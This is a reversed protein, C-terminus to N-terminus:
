KLKLIVNRVFPLIEAAFTLLNLILYQWFSLNQTRTQEGILRRMDVELRSSEQLRGEERYKTVEEERHEIAAKQQEVRLAREEEYKGKWQDVLEARRASETEDRRLEKARISRIDNIKENLDALQAEKDDVFSEMNQLATLVQEPKFEGDSRANYQEICMKLDQQFQQCGGTKVYHQSSLKEQLSGMTESILAQCRTESDREIKSIQEQYRSSLASELKGLYKGSKDMLSHRMFIQLAEKHNQSYSEAVDVLKSSLGPSQSGAMKDFHELARAVAAENELEAMRAVSSDVCPIGKRNFASAYDELLVSLMKGTVHHGELTTKVKAKTHIYESFRAFEAVFKEDLETDPLEQLCKLKRGAAPCEFAFCHRSPFYERLCSRLFNNDQAKATAETSDPSLKLCNELYGDPSVPSGNIELDVTLDRLTWVFDPFFEDFVLSESDPAQSKVQILKALETVFITLVNFVYDAKYRVIQLDRLSGQTIIDKSNYVFVSCLLVALVMISHDNQEDGKEPDGIGECDLLLLQQGAKQPHALCWMWIGKTHSQVTHGLSFGKKSRALRNLLYSKGSRAPGSVAVVVLPMTCARLTLLASQNLELRGDSNGVLLMPHEMM